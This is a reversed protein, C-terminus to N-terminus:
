GLIESLKRATWYENGNEDVEKIQEFITQKPEFSTLKKDKM